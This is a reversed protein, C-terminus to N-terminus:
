AKLDRSGPKEAPLAAIVADEEKGKAPLREVSLGVKALELELARQAEAEALKHDVDDLVLIPTEPALSANVDHLVTKVRGEVKPTLVVEEGRTLMMGGAKVHGIRLKPGQLDGLIALLKGEERAVERLMEVTKTHGAHDGHSFNIRAVTMGAALMARITDRHASGPGITAVIKTRAM